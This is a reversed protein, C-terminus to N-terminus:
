AVVAGARRVPIWFYPSAADGGAAAEHVSDPMEGMADAQERLRAYTHDVTGASAFHYVMAARVGDSENDTSCHMLHSDFVLLDGADMLVQQAADFDYDVIETYGLNADPRQDPVHEHVPERQSGPMVSLPGNTPTAATVALWVGVVVARESRESTQHDPEFPFYLSDQHWPQGRAGPNKFIFQSLFCDVDPGLIDELLAGLREDRTFPAFVPERVDDTHGNETHLIFVKSVFDEPERAGSWSNREPDVLSVGLDEGRANARCLEVARELMADCTTADAFGRVIFYGHEDWSARQEATLM